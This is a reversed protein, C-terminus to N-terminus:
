HLSYEGTVLVIVNKPLNQQSITQQILETVYHDAFLEGVNMWNRDKIEFLEEKSDGDYFKVTLRPSDKLYRGM